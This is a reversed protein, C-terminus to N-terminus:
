SQCCAPRGGKRWENRHKIVWTPIFRLKLSDRFSICCCAFPVFFKQLVATTAREM